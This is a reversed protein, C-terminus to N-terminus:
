YKGEGNIPALTNYTILSVSNPAHLPESTSQGFCDAWAHISQKLSNIIYPGSKLTDIPTYAIAPSCEQAIFLGLFAIVVLKM